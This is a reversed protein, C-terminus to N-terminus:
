LGYIYRYAAVAATAGDGIASAVLSVSHQRIDGAAFVGDRSTRMLIDTVIHGSSDLEIVDRLFETNPELGVYVFVGAVAEERTEGTAKDRV